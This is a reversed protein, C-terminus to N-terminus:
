GSVKETPLENDITSSEVTTEFLMRNLGCAAFM